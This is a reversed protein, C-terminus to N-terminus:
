IESRKINYRHQTGWIWPGVSLDEDTPHLDPTGVSLDEDTPHLDPKRVQSLVIWLRSIM